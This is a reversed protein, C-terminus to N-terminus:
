AGLMEHALSQALHKLNVRISRDYLLQLDQRDRANTEVLSSWGWGVGAAWACGWGWRPNAFGPPSSYPKEPTAVLHRQSGMM